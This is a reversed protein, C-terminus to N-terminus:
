QRKMAAAPRTYVASFSVNAGGCNGNDHALLYDGLLTFRVQCLNEDEGYHGVRGTIEVPGDIEGEHISPWNHTGAPGPWYAKGTVTLKSFRNSFTLQPNGESSWKGLWRAPDARTDAPRLSLQLSPLWGATGGGKSPYFACAYGNRIKSLIVTDGSIVYARSACAEGQWPCGEADEHFYARREMGSVTALVFHPDQTFVGNRCTVDFEEPPAAGLCLLPALLAPLRRPNM